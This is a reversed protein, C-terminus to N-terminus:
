KQQLVEWQLLCLNMSLLHAHGHNACYPRWEVHQGPSISMICSFWCYKSLVTILVLLTTQTWVVVECKLFTRFGNKNNVLYIRFVYHLPLFWKGTGRKSHKGYCIQLNQKRLLITIEFDLLENSAFDKNAIWKGDFWQM